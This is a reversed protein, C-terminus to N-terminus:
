TPMFKRIPRTCWQPMGIKLGVDESVGLMDCLNRSVYVLHVPDTLSYQHFGSIDRSFIEETFDYQNEM